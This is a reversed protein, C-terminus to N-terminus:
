RVRQNERFGLREIDHPNMLIVDRREMGRYVDEEEYVVTNFQGESRMTMLRLLSHRTGLVSSRDLVPGPLEIVHFTAKGSATKFIPEAFHRGEVHFERRTADIEGIPAYGPIVQAIKERILRRDRFRNWDVPSSMSGRGGQLPSPTLVRDAIDITIDVESRPGDHRPKGGDSMRVYSFMSEQTTAHRSKM